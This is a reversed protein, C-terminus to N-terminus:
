CTRSGCNTFCQRHEDLSVFDSLCLTGCRKSSVLIGLAQSLVLLSLVARSGWLLSAATPLCTWSAKRQM